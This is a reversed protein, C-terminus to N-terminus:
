YFINKEKKNDFWFMAKEWKGNQKKYIELNILECIKKIEDINDKINDQTMYIIEQNEKENYVQKLGNNDFVCLMQRDKINEIKDSILVPQKDNEEKNEISINHPIFTHTSFTWLTKDITEIDEKKCLIGIKKRNNEKFELQSYCLKDLLQGLNYVVKENKPINYIVLRQM